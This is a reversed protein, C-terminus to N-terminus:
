RVSQHAALHEEQQALLGVTQAFDSWREGHQVIKARDFIQAAGLFTARFAVATGARDHESLRVAAGRRLL